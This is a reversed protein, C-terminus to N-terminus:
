RCSFGRKMPKVLPAEALQAFALCVNAKEVPLGDPLAEEAMTKSFDLRAGRSAPLVNGTPGGENAIEQMTSTLLGKFFQCRGYLENLETMPTTLAGKSIERIISNLGANLSNMDEVLSSMNAMSAEVQLKKESYSLEYQVGTEIIVENNFYDKNQYSDAFTLMHLTVGPCVPADIYQEYANVAISTDFLKMASLTVSAAVSEVVSKHKAVLALGSAVAGGASGSGSIIGGVANSVFDTIRSPEFSTQQRFDWNLNTALTNRDYGNSSYFTKIREDFSTKINTKLQNRLTDLYSQFEANQRVEKEISQTKGM